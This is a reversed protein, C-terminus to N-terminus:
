NNGNAVNFERVVGLKLSGVIMLLLALSILGWQSLTPIQLACDPVTYELTFTCDQDDDSTFVVTIVTGAAVGTETLMMGDTGATIGGIAVDSTWSSGNSMVVFTIDATDDLPDYITENDKCTFSSAGVTFFCPCEVLCDITIDDSGPTQYCLDAFSGFDYSLTANTGTASPCVNTAGATGIVEDCVTTGVLLQAMGAEGSCTPLVINETFVPLVARGGFVVAVSGDCTDPPGPQNIVGATGATCAGSACAVTFSAGEVELSYVDCPSTANPNLPIDFCIQSGIHPSSVSIPGINTTLDMTVICDGDIAAPDETNLCISLIEGACAPGGGFNLPADGLDIAPCDGCASCEVCFKWFQLEIYCQHWYYFPM